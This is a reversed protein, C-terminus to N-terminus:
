QAAFIKSLAELNKAEDFIATIDIEFGSIAESVLQGSSAKLVLEYQEDSLRYLEVTNKTPDIILYELVQHAEYDQFKIGRDNGKTGKSLVEVVFDPAPFLSQGTKFDKSKDNGFFCIDPEYDNRTLSIMVKEYGVYGLKYKSVYVSILRFLFGTVDNHEKKVPSHVVVEGNIFEVKEEDTVEDYFQKRRQREEEIQKNLQNLLIPADPMALISEIIDKRNVTM